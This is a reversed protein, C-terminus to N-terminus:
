TPNGELINKLFMARHQLCTGHKIIAHRHVATGYGKHVDFGYVAHKQHLERMINDREQKALISAAAIVHSVSDGQKICVAPCPLCQPLKNGDILAFKPVVSLGQVAQRMALLSAQLINIKEIIDVGVIGFAYALAENRICVALEARRKPSLKKSDNVGEIVLGPPFVVACAVVPGALAGRGAEDVGVIPFIGQAAYSDEYTTPATPILKKM